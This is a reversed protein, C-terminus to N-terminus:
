RREDHGAKIEAARQCLEGKRDYFLNENARDINLNRPRGNLDMRLWDYMKFTFIYPTSSIELVMNNKGSGHITGSPILFLDHKVARQKQVYRDVDLPQNNEASM